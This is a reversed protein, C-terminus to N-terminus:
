LPAVAAHVLYSAGGRQPLARYRDLLVRLQDLLARADASNLRLDLWLEAAPRQKSSRSELQM